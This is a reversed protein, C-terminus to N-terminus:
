DEVHLVCCRCSLDCKSNRKNTGVFSASSNLSDFQRLVDDIDATMQNTTLPAHNLSSSSNIKDSNAMAVRLHELDLLYNTKHAVHPFKQIPLPKLYPSGPFSSSQVCTSILSFNSLNREGLANKANLPNM